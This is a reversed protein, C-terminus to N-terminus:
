HSSTKAILLHKHVDACARLCCSYPLPHVHTSPAVQQKAADADASLHHQSAELNHIKKLAGQEHVCLMAAHSLWVVFAIVFSAKPWLTHLEPAPLCCDQAGHLRSAHM